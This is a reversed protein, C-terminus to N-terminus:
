WSATTGSQFVEPMMHTIITGFLFAGSFALLIKFANGNTKIIWSAAGGLAVSGILVLWIIM